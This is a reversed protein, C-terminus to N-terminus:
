LKIKEIEEKLWDLDRETYVAETVDKIKHGVIRKIAYEDMGARKALTVFTKRPDHPRHGTINLRDMLENFSNYYTQYSQERFVYKGHPKILHQIGSHIPVMRNKGAETKLGGCIFGDKINKAELLCIERPRWGMFIQVIVMQATEDDLNNMLIAIEEDCFAKHQTKTRSAERLLNDSLKYERAYNRDTLEYRIAYDFLMSLLSRARKKISPTTDSGEICERINRIRIESVPVTHLPELKRWLTKNYAISYKSTDETFHEKTWREYIEELTTKSDLEYPSRNYKVLASYAAQYSPFYANPKLLKCIPRGTSPNKGVTVMVRYPNRMPKSTIKTIQGFGNPLRMRNKGRTPNKTQNQFPYGCHPCFAAKDSVQLSCEPCTTLM